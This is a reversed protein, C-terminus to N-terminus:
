LRMIKKLYGPSGAYRSNPGGWCTAQSIGDIDGKSQGILAIDVHIGTNGMYNNGQGIATAGADKCAQMFTIMIPLDSERASSLIKGNNWLAVDAAWGNDHRNSGTRDVGNKGGDAKRVQGGSNIKVIVKAAKAGAELVGMLAKQIPKNRKGHNNYKVSGDASGEKALNPNNTASSQGKADSSGNDNSSGSTSKRSPSSSSSSGAAGGGGAGGGAGAGGAGGGAGAGGAGGGAGAGGEDAGSNVDGGDADEEPEDGENSVGDCADKFVCEAVSSMMGFINNDSAGHEAADGVSVARGSSITRKMITKIAAKATNKGCGTKVEGKLANWCGELNFNPLHPIAAALSKAKDTLQNNLGDLQTRIGKAAEDLGLPDGTGARIRNRLSTKTESAIRKLRFNHMSNRLLRQQGTNISDSSPSAKEIKNYKLYKNDKKLELFASPSMQNYYQEGARNSSSQKILYSKLLEKTVDFVLKERNNSNHYYKHQFVLSRGNKGFLVNRVSTKLDETTLYIKSNDNNDSNIGHKSSSPSTLTLRYQLANGTINLFNFLLILLTYLTIFIIHRM